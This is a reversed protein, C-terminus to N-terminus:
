IKGLGETLEIYNGWPDTLFAQTIGLEPRKTFPVDFKVGKAESKQVFTELDKIEFGIHDLTSGKTGISVTTAARFRLSTGPLELAKAATPGGGSAGEAAGFVKQYWERMATASNAGDPPAGIASFHIHDFKIPVTNSPKEIFEIKVGDGTYMFGCSGVASASCGGKTPETKLGMAAFKDMLGTGSKVQFGIHDVGGTGPASDGKRVGIVGGPFKVMDNPGLKVATGGIDVFFKKTADVDKVVLHVHGMSVGMENPPALQARSVSATSLLMAALVMLWQVRKKTQRM